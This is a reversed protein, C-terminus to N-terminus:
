KKKDTWAAREGSTSVKPEILPYTALYVATTIILFSAFKNQYAWVAARKLFHPKPEKVMM